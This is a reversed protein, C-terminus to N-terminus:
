GEPDHIVVVVDQDPEPSRGDDSDDGRAWGLLGVIAAAAVICGIIQRTTPGSAQTEM